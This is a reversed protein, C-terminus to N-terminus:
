SMGLKLLSVLWGWHIVGRIHLVIVILLFLLFMNVCFLAVMKKRNTESSAFQGYMNTHTHKHHHEVQIKVKEKSIASSINTRLESEIKSSVKEYIQSALKDAQSSMDPAPVHIGAASKEVATSVSNVLKQIEQEPISVSLGKQNLKTVADTVMAFGEKIQRVDDAMFEILNIGENIKKAM